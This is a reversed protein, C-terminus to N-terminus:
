WSGRCGSLAVSHRPDSELTVPNEGTDAQEISLAIGKSTSGRSSIHERVVAVRGERRHRQVDMTRGPLHDASRDLQLAIVCSIAVALAPRSAPSVTSPSGPIPLVRSSSAAPSHAAASPNTVIATVASSSSRPGNRTAREIRPEGSTWAAAAPVPAASARSRQRSEIDPCSSGPSAVREARDGGAACRRGRRRRTGRARPRALRERQEDVVELPRVLVAEAQKAVHDARDAVLGIKRINAIRGSSNANMVSATLRSPRCPAAHPHQAAHLHVRRVWDSVRSRRASTSPPRTSARPAATMCACASPTGNMTSSIARAYRSAPCSGASRRSTAARGRLASRSTGEATCSGSRGGLQARERPSSAARQGCAATSPRRKLRFSRRPPRSGTHVAALRVRRREGVVSVGPRRPRGASGARPPSRPRSCSGARAPARTRPPSGSGPAAGLSGCLRDDLQESDPSGDGALGGAARGDRSPRRRHARDAHSERDLCAAVRERGVCGLLDEADDLECQRRGRRECSRDLQELGAVVREVHEAARAVPQSPSASSAASASASPSERSSSSTRSRRAAASRVASSYSRAAWSARSTRASARRVAVIAARARRSAHLESLVEQARRRALRESGGCRSTSRSPASSANRSRDLEGLLQAVLGVEAAASRSAPTDHLEAPHSRPEHLLHLDALVDRDCSRTAAPSTRSSM